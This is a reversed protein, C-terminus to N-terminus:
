QTEKRVKIDMGVAYLFQEQVTMWPLRIFGQWAHDPGWSNPVDLEDGHGLDRYGCLPVGHGGLSKSRKGDIWGDAKATMWGETINFGAIVCNYRHILRCLALRLEAGTLDMVVRQEAGPIPDIWGFEVVAEIPTFLTTGAKQNTEYELQLARQYVRNADRQMKRQNQKWDLREIECCIAESACQTTNGQDSLPLLYESRRDIWPPPDAEAVAGADARFRQLMRLQKRDEHIRLM